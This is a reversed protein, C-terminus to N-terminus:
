LARRKSTGSSGNGFIAWMSAAQAAILAKASAAGSAVAGCVQVLPSRSLQSMLAPQGLLRAYVQGSETLLPFSKAPETGAPNGKASTENPDLGDEEMTESHRILWDTDGANATRSGCANPNRAVYM